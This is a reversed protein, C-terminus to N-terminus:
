AKTPLTLHTYSVPIISSMTFADSTAPLSINGSLIVPRVLRITSLVAACNEDKEGADLENLLTRSLKPQFRSSDISVPYTVNLLNDSPELTTRGKSLRSCILPTLSGSVRPEPMGVIVSPKYLTINVPKSAAPLVPM